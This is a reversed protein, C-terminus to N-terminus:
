AKDVNDIFHVLDDKAAMVDIAYGVNDGKDNLIKANILNEILEVLQQGKTM